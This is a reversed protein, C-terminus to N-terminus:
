ERAIDAVHFAVADDDLRHHRNRVAKLERYDGFADLRLCLDIEQDPEAARRHLTVHKTTRERSFRGRLQQPLAHLVHLVGRRRDAVFAPIRDHLRARSTEALHPAGVNVQRLSGREPGEVRSYLPLQFEARSTGGCRCAAGRCTTPSGSCRVGRARQSWRWLCRCTTTTSCKSATTARM